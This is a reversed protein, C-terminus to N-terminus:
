DAITTSTVANVESGTSYGTVAKPTVVVGITHGVDAITLKYTSGTAGSIPTSVDDRYWQYTNTAEADNETDSYVYEVRLTQGNELTGRIVLGTIVPPDNHVLLTSGSMVENGTTYGTLAVPTVGVSIYKDQHADEFDYGYDASSLTAIDVKNITGAVDDTLYWTRISVGQADSETDSYDHTVNFNVTGSFLSSVPTFAVNSAVPADNHIQYYGSETETGETNGFNSIPLVSFSIYKDNDANSFSYSLNAGSGIEAKNTGLQDDNLYWKIVSSGEANADRDYYIYGATFNVVDSYEWTDAEAILGSVQPPCNDLQIYASSEADGETYGALARPTIDVRFWRGNESNNPTYTKDNSGVPTLGAGEDDTASYWQYDVRDFANGEKDFYAYGAYLNGDTGWNNNVVVGKLQPACNNIPYYASLVEDGTTYGGTAVPQVGFSIYKGQDDNSYTYTFNEGSGIPEKGNGLDDDSRYWTIVSAGEEDEEKDYYIYGATFNVEESYEWTDAEAILGSVQPPCNDIQMYASTDAAGITYGAAAYPTIVVRFWLGSEANTPTYTDSISDVVATEGTGLSDTATYWQYEAHDFADEERDFYTFGAYLRGDISWNNNVMVGDLQPPCNYIPYYSSLVEEGTTNGSAAIPQVGFSIYKGDDANSYTYTFEAGSGIPEKNTGLDDDSRYWTIISGSEPDKEKDYYIYGAKFNVDESYEWTDAEAILGSVQPVCNDIQIYVSTDAVGDTYGSQAYPTIEVRFWRGNESNDPTYTKTSDAIATEGAGLSDTASYWQYDVRDFADGEKDFYAYGAYLKGDIGWNNNVVVGDLQPACNNIPYYASLVEDGTINGGTAGPIVGFSIYKGQDANSYTYTFEAGSGIPEKNTGLEDDSRYWTIVTGGESDKEKDYYIYGAKFNVEGSYEWTDAEAILGSVQPPCNDIQMYASTDAAGITYGSQAYPTVIVRFWLGNEANAPTYTDSISDVVATEGTGLSDTATYWQYEAHDFADEERDFYTFGAYLRGDISWNNNVIVGDLQPPCNYIPYYASEVEVGETNGSAAIPQVGFSIYKGQDDNSYTYTLEAGSGIPEKNTGLDDDSRYWTIISGDEPDKEKDYYIYGAKFNVDESYEWTDAEAILGSVQPVCNDIQIYASTDATGITYGSQAYPTIAVRFWLGNESNNPTYTKTSDAIATEGAGLSDTASYWQYEVRDFADGEKDFYAYGAYLRGDIGWNNNVVVGDLQPPCNNIPYYSSLVEVGDTNGSAAIPQVGFSIYKGQDANSYTYTFEEGSGIPEKNTGLEDDSRYWKIVSGSEPDKEKDYYIYGAKFNVDESYEWTDAEAILGSVQPPCNDIQIYASTDATGITYGSQAYPTVIVRFWLGSEANAPTYTDSISDVVATEGTGLSDTATYWQYEAHDFADEERDFYTFGAYLRGDISWNNNVIVGDLQPPCNYIPYYSSLVEEGTTNGSAAIPQVGFSIYKGQDDNSYTYTFEAGSGIIEKNTGLDDDSRYWTIISGDEPDKEKDYYIYGAKFNVDESYEWTDAEAILGSVQPVCNDIQIYASTDATGITYGSQAYPTIAVRFWLGNESNNPTYTKTSDAIATEGAGLSDTASYWQYEVRDFADGEKDFYAYGAYLRGDIGWNNNVVVGDLQPPCNNIPYYSSLVEVGDTNGSAAIPQVGFSIYKGQDANSYTYTFAAGSGIEEKNAGLEDDSRYWKIVTGGEPDKEKDYYIYGAKFNVEESYEWTDAEAILGSVQPPCNDIQIYASTDAAGITYGAAAYPTIVVRFWLSNEANTPTYTDSISDVVLTEDTGTNDTATYWQYEAHDFADGERDFYTFGAYLRGDISWNNNVIVGDLQPPCNYIPYYASEVEEGTTNGSAAIPQVGFSIYKGQDDNSYTYTFEAGSGIPEKNTGLDDDSRYWTIVSSGEPDKEKDYYIYGAKFNVDESYEWTDAEAILGSVQPVCNDIQIYASTDATGITYGSQAYPTIAVRFWLGNESNNPTYTKTSDAIATEGAGLSDTASYWQYEVRDFADGEKDFYAYGAYLRGDIGWNNNVVVGDLQPPCNNIPYYSSLVEVGDTNGSAAIPQVGFSIYKGQDANSYTYTFEEGSGIPEKNTGLEDDSRYWKIVSGSEPDKEKDYYIYGAKFNVDESYEWTDAEAILGSVQPPCNDIQIYASTDATGITYGSQAYPTVIVRFWLGSEANAPTYTDSISDVVATEGTGLSDTATYWQYEAHDFADEESDFYAFGAYLRGDISWNNNVIVGDLQPPCNYIPYYSSLVEEGTTNGSAAIPQVGFSIYKGQDDNSYTYTFEAGSGIIEKNTGLDDDSRYWKIITEGEVNRDKDYYIYGAKFNVDESYEWTDAEAILGSVQPPCNTLLYWDSEAAVGVQGTSSMPIVQFQLYKGEKSDDYASWKAGTGDETKNTGLNDDAVFWRYYSGTEENGDKQFYGYAGGFVMNDWDGDIFVAKAYPECVACNASIWSSGDYIQLQKTTVDIYVAGASVGSPPSVLVPIAIGGPIGDIDGMKTQSNDNINGSYPLDQASHWGTGNNVHIGPNNNPYLLAGPYSAGTPLAQVPLCPIGDVVRFYAEAGPLEPLILTCFSDWYKGSYVQVANDAISFIMSGPLPTSVEATSDFVPLHPIGNIVQFYESQAKAPVILWLLVALLLISKCNIKSM